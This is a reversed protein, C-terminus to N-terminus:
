ILQILTAVNTSFIIKKDFNHLHFNVAAIKKETTSLETTLSKKKVHKQTLYKKLNAIKSAIKELESQKSAYVTTTFIVM